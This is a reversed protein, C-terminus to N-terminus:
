ISVLSSTQSRRFPRLQPQALQLRSARAAVSTEFIPFSFQEARLRTNAIQPIVQPLVEPLTRVPAPVVGAGVTKKPVFPGNTPVHSQAHRPTVTLPLAMQPPRTRRPLSPTRRHPKKPFETSTNGQLPLVAKCASLTPLM